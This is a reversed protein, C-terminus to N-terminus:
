GFLKDAIKELEMREKTDDYQKDKEDIYRNVDIYFLGDRNCFCYIRKVGRIKFRCDAKGEPYLKVIQIGDSSLAAVFSIYHKKTMEHIIQIYYEDEVREILIMHNEDSLEAPEPLLQVGHCSITMEGMSHIVNGCVPCVYIDDLANESFGNAKLLSILKKQGELNVDRIKKIKEDM